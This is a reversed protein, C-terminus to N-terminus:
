ELKTLVELALRYKEELTYPYHRETGETLLYWIRPELKKSLERANVMRRSRRQIEEKTISASFYKSM